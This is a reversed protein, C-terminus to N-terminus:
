NVTNFSFHLPSKFSLKPPPPPPNFEWGRSVTLSFRRMQSAMVGRQVTCQSTCESQDRSLKHGLVSFVSLSM